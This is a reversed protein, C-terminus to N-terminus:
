DTKDLQRGAHDIIRVAEAIQKNVPATPGDQKFFNQTSLLVSRTQVLLKRLQTSQANVPTRLQNRPM